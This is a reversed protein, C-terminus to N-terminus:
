HKQYRWYKVTYKLEAHMFTGDSNPYCAGLEADFARQYFEVAKNSGKVYVQMM